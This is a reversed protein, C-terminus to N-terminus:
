HRGALSVFRGWYNRVINQTKLLGRTRSHHYIRRGFEVTARSVAAPMQMAVKADVSVPQYGAELLTQGTIWQCLVADGVPLKRRWKGVAAASIGSQQSGHDLTTSNSWGVDLMDAVFGADLFGCIRRCESEPSSVLDEYAVQMVNQPYQAAAALGAKIASKWGLSDLITDAGFVQTVGTEAVAKTWDRSMRQNKSVLIDRPDRSLVIIKATPRISLIQPIHHVHTPTKELWFRRGKITALEDFVGYFLAEHDHLHRTAQRVQVIEPENFSSLQDAVKSEHPPLGVRPLERQVRTLLWQLYDERTAPDTLDAFMNRKVALTDYFFTESRIALVDPHLGLMRRLLTTGSHMYGVIFIPTRQPRDKNTM